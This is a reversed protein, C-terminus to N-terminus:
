RVWEILPSPGEDEITPSTSNQIVVLWSAEAFDAMLIYPISENSDEEIGQEVAAITDETRDTRRRQPHANDM